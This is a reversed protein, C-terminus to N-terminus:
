SRKRVRTCQDRRLCLWHEQLGEHSLAGLLDSALLVTHQLAMALSRFERAGPFPSTSGANRLSAALTACQEFSRGDSRGGANTTTLVAAAGRSVPGSRRIRLVGKRGLSSEFSCGCWGFPAM